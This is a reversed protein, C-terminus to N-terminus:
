ETNGRLPERKTAFIRKCSVRRCTSTNCLANCYLVLTEVLNLRPTSLLFYLLQGLQELFFLLATTEVAESFSQSWRAVILAAVRFNLSSLGSTVWFFNM